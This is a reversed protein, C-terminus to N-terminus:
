CPVAWLGLSASATSQKKLNISPKTDASGSSKHVLFTIEEWAGPFSGLIREQARLAPM